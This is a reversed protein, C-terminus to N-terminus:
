VIKSCVPVSNRSSVSHRPAISARTIHLTRSVGAQAQTADIQTKQLPWKVRACDRPNPERDVAAM